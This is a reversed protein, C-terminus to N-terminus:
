AQPLKDTIFSTADGPWVWIRALTLVASAATAAEAFDEGECLFCCADFGVVGAVFGDDIM